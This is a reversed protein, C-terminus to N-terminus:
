GADRDTHEISEGLRYIVSAGTARVAAVYADTREFDYSEGRQPDAGPNPFVAHLL